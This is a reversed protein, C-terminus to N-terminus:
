EFTQKKSTSKIANRSCGFKYTFKLGKRFTSFNDANISGLSGIHQCYPCECYGKDIRDIEECENHSSHNCRVCTVFNITEIKKKCIVCINDSLIKNRRSLCNGM